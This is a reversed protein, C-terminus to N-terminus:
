KLWYGRGSNGETMKLNGKQAEQYLSLPLEHDLDPNSNSIDPTRECTTLKGM